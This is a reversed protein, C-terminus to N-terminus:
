EGRAPRSIWFLTLLSVLTAVIAVPWFWSFWTEFLHDWQVGAENHFVGAPNRVYDITTMVLGVVLGVVGGISIGRFVLRGFDVGM